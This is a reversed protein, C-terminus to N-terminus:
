GLRWFFTSYSNTSIKYEVAKSSTYSVMSNRNSCYALNKRCNAEVVKGKSCYALNKSYNTEGVKRKSCYALNKSYNTTGVKM